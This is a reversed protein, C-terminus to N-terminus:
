RQDKQFTKLAEVARSIAKELAEATEVSKHALARQRM